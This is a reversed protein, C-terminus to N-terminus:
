VRSRDAHLQEDDCPGEDKVAAHLRRSEAEDSREHLVSVVHVQEGRGRLDGNGADRMMPQGQRTEGRPRTKEGKGEDNAADRAPPPPVDHLAVLSRKPLVDVARTLATM